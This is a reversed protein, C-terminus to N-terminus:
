ERCVYTHIDVLNLFYKCSFIKSSNIQVKTLFTQRVCVTLKMWSWRMMDSEGVLLQPVVKLFHTDLEQNIKFILIKSILNVKMKQVTLVFLNRLLTKMLCVYQHYTKTLNSFNRYSSSHLMLHIILFKRFDAWHSLIEVSITITVEKTLLLPHIFVKEVKKAESKRKRM